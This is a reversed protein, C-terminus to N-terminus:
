FRMTSWLRLLFLRPSSRSAARIGSYLRHLAIFYRATRQGAVGSPTQVLM